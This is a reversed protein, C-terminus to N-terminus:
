AKIEKPTADTADHATRPVVKEVVDSAEPHAPTEAEKKSAELAEKKTESGAAPADGKRAEAKAAEQAQIEAELEAEDDELESGYMDPHARFCDQMGRFSCM